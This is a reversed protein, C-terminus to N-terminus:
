APQTASTAAPVFAPMVAMSQIPRMRIEKIRGAMRVGSNATGNLFAPRMLSPSIFSSQGGGSSRYIEIYLCISCIYAYVSIFMLLYSCYVSIFLLLIILLFFSLLRERSLARANILFPEQITIFINNYFLEQIISFSEQIKM